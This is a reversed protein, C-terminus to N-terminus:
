LSFLIGFKAECIRTANELMAQFVPELEGPSSSIVRLVDATATQQELSQRLENLLRTNEIAIVAQAAFNQVLEIQKDTFPRVEQRYIIIAGILEDDKLMPVVIRRDRAVSAQHAARRRKAGGCDDAIHIVQKQRCCRPRPRKRCAARVSGRQKLFEAYEPPVGFTLPRISREATMDFCNRWVERRLHADREGAHSPVGAGARGALQQHRAARGGDGDAAGAIAAIRQAAAHERHRHRGPRRFEDAARDAQRHIAPSGSPLYLHRRRARWGQANARRGDIPRRRVQGRPSEVSEAAYDITHSVRKTQLVRELLSGPVPSFPGRQRMFKGFEPPTGVEAALEFMEGDFSLLSGFKAECIRTANELMSQFVPALDGPSSSIVQLVEATATQQELSQRLENLLRTNEIAIVAQAAFNQVLATQKDTFRRVEQRYISIAGVLENDKLLPVSLLTRVGGLDVAAVRMPDAASNASDAFADEIQVVRKTAVARGLSTNPGPHVLKHLRAEVYAPPAGYMAVARFGDGERFYMTGFKAECIRTANELMAQFVPELEGPSSSIVSLVEATATQQELLETLERTRQQEAEFLRVNEVAIVAQDAFTTVLEIQKETFREVRSRMLVLVGIPRGERLLPVGLTTHVNEFGLVNTMRFEPDAKTDVIQVAKGEPLIRGITSGRDPKAPVPHEIMYRHQKATYGYSAVHHFFDDRALRFSAKDARCLRAALEILTELVVQLDFTSRSIVKLVDATAIQQELLETLDETRQRLESLLRTNEIAIVAQAAFSTLLDVQAESFPRVEQRYVTIMGILENDKLMPVTVLSRVRTLKVFRREQPNKYSAAEAAMDAVQITRKTKAVRALVTTGTIPALPERSRFATFAPPANHMAVARCFDGEALYLTGFNAQCLRTASELIVAFVRKLDGPAASILHLVESTAAQQQLAENLEKKNRELQEHLGAALRPQSKAKAVARRKRGAAKPRRVDAAKGGAKGPRKM